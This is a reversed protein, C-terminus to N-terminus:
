GKYKMRKLQEETVLIGVVHYKKAFTQQGIAHSETHHIRCLCMIEHKTHDARKRNNGAGISDVHHIEGKKNCIACKRHLLCLYLYDKIDDHLELGSDQFAINEMFCFDILFSIFERALEITCNEEKESTSFWPKKREDCFKTKLETKVEDITLGRDKGIEGCMAHIKMRQQATIIRTDYLLFTGYVVGSEDAYQKLKYGPIEKDLRIILEQEGNENKRSGVIQALKELM